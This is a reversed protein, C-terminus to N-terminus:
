VLSIAINTNNAMNDSIPCRSDVRGIFVEKEEETMDADLNVKARIETLGARGEKTKGLLFAKDIDGEVEVDFKRIELREQRAIIAAITALCGGLASLFIILPNPGEDKGGAAEPQDIIITHGGGQVDTHMGGKWSATLKITSAM